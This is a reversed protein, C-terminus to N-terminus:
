SAASFHQTQPWKIRSFTLFAGEAANQPGGAQLVLALPTASLSGIALYFTM